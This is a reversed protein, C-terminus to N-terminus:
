ERIRSAWRNWGPISIRLWVHRRGTVIACLLNWVPISIPILVPIEIFPYSIIGRYRMEKQSPSEYIDSTRTYYVDVGNNELIQGVATALRLADDKEQRGNYVAGPNAGGHGADMVVLAM